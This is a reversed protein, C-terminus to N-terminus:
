IHKNAVELATAIADDSHDLLAETNQSQAKKAKEAARVLKEAISAHNTIRGGSAREIRGGTAATQTFKHVYNQTEPPLVIEIGCFEVFIREPSPVV